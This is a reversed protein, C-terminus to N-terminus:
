VVTAFDNGTNYSNLPVDLGVNAYELSNTFNTVSYTSTYAHSLTVAQFIDKLNGLKSLGNYDLRWNPLPIQPFPTLAVADASVNSYAALFAPILVDQSQSEYNAIQGTSNFREKLLGVNQEFQQFVESNVSTNNKFATGITITSIRYAGT